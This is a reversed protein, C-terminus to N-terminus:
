DADQYGLYIWIAPNFFFNDIFLSIILGYIFLIRNNTNSIFVKSKILVYILFILGFFGYKSIISLYSMHLTTKYSDENVQFTFGTGNGLFLEFINKSKLDALTSQIEFLRGSSLINLSDFNFFNAGYNIYIYTYIILGIITANFLNIKSIILALLNGRRGSLYNLILMKLNVKNYKALFYVNYYTLSFGMYVSVPTLYSFFLLTLLSIIEPICLYKYIHSQSLRYLRGIQYLGLSSLIIVSGKLIDFLHYGNAIGVIAGYIALFLISFYIKNIKIHNHIFIGIFVLCIFYFYSTINAYADIRLLRLTGAILNVIYSFSFIFLFFNLRSIKLIIM